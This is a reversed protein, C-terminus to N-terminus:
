FNYNLSLGYNTKGSFQNQEFNPELTLENNVNFQQLHADVNADIVNLVYLGATILLSLEKNRRFHKQARVLAEDTLQGQFEDDNYGALRQKYADRYRNYQKTNDIYFYVGTGLAGYVIPIKWYRGNYAQGLGPLVASYFAAKAPALADYKKYNKNQTSDIKSIRNARQSLSDTQAFAFSIGILTFLISFFLNRTVKSSNPWVNM